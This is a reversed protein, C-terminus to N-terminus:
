GAPVWVIDVSGNYTGDASPSVLATGVVVSATSASCTNEVGDCNPEILTVGDPMNWTATVDGDAMVSQPNGGVCTDGASFNLMVSMAVSAGPDVWIMGSSQNSPNNNDTLNVSPDPAWTPLMGPYGACPDFPQSASISFTSNVAEQAFTPLSIGTVVVALVAIQVLRKGARNTVSSM